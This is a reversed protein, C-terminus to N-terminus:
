LPNATSNLTLLIRKIASSGFDTFTIKLRFSSFNDTLSNKEKSFVAGDASYTLTMLVKEDGKSNIASITLDNNVAIVNSLELLCKEIKSIVPLDYWKSYAIFTASSGFQGIVPSFNLTYMGSNSCLAFASGKWRFLSDIITAGTLASTSLCHYFQKGNFCIVRKNTSGYVDGASGEIWYLRNKFTTIMCKYKPYGNTERLVNLTMGNWYGFNYADWIYLTGNFSKMTYIPSSMRYREITSTDINTGDWIILEGSCAVITDTQSDAEILNSKIKDAYIYLKNDHVEIAMCIYDTDLTLCGNVVTGSSDIRHVKNADIIYLYGKYVVMQHPVTAVLAAQSKTTIWYSLDISGLAATMQAIDTTSTVYYKGNFFIADSYGLKYDRTTDQVGVPTLRGGGNSAMSYFQGNNSTAEQGVCMAGVVTQAADNAYAIIKVNPIFGQVTCNGGTGSGTLTFTFDNTGPSALLTYNGDPTGQGTLFDIYVVQGEIFGHSSLTVTVVNGTWTYTASRATNEKFSDNLRLPPALVGKKYDLNCIGDSGIGGEFESNGIGQEFEAKGFELNYLGM